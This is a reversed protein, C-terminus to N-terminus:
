KVIITQSEATNILLFCIKKYRIKLTTITTIIFGDPTESVSANENVNGDVDIHGNRDYVQVNINLSAQGNESIKGTAIGKIQSQNNQGLVFHLFWPFLFM